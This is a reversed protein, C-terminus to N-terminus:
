PRPTTPRPPAFEQRRAGNQWGGGGPRAACRSCVSTSSKLYSSYNPAILASQVLATRGLKSSILVGREDGGSSNRSSIWRRM